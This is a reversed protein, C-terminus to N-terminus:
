TRSHAKRLRDAQTAANTPATKRPGTSRPTAGRMGTRMWPARSQPGIYRLWAQGDRRATEFEGVRFAALGGQRGASVFFDARGDPTIKGGEGPSARLGEAVDMYKRRPGGDHSKPALEGFEFKSKATM